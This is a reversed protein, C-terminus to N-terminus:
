TKKAKDTKRRTTFAYLGDEPNRLQSIALGLAYNHKDLPKETVDDLLQWGKLWRKIQAISYNRKPYNKM